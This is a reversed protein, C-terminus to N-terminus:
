SAAKTTEAYRKRARWVAVRDAHARRCEPCGAVFTRHEGHPDRSITPRPMGQRDQPLTAGWIGFREDAALAYDLCVDRAPCRQCADLAVLAEATSVEKKDPWWAEPDSTECPAPGHEALMAALTLWENRAEPPLLWAAFEAHAPV